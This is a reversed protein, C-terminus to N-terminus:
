LIFDGVVLTTVHTLKIVIDPTADANVYGKVTADGNGDVSYSLHGAAVIASTGDFVFHQHGGVTTNADFLSLDIRDGEAHSFDTVTDPNAATSEVTKAFAFTDAGAGGSMVDTGNGGILTDNGNGGKLTDRGAGGVLVDNGGGGILLDTGDGGDLTDDGAGGTLTNANADGTLVDNLASGTLNEIGFLTDGEADGGQGTGTALSVAVAAHSASYDATDTGADGELYDAGAGGILTDDFPAPSIRSRSSPTAKPTGGHGTGTALNVAVAVCSAGRGPRERLLCHSHRRRLM